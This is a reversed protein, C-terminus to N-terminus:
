YCWHFRHRPPIWLGHRTDRHDDAVPPDEGDGVEGTPDERLTDKFRELAKDVRQGTSSRDSPRDRRRDDSDGKSTSVSGLVLALSSIIIATLYSNFKAPDSRAVSIFVVLVAICVMYRMVRRDTAQNWKM